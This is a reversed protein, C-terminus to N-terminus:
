KHVEGSIKLNDINSKDKDRIVYKNVQQDNKLTMHIMSLHLEHPIYTVSPQCWSTRRLLPFGVVEVVAQM